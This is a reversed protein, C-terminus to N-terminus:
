LLNRALSAESWRLGLPWNTIGGSLPSAKTSDRGTALNWPTPGISRWVLHAAKADIGAGVELRLDELEQLLIEALGAGPVVGDGAALVVAATLGSRSRLDTPESVM